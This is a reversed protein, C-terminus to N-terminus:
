ESLLLDAKRLRAALGILLRKAVHPVRDILQDFEQRSSVEAVVDSEAIVTATRPGGDLLSVEGIFDGAGLEAVQTGNVMVRARGEVIAIFELGTKGEATLQQGAPFTLPTTLSGILDLEKPSCASFLTIKKLDENSRRTHRM